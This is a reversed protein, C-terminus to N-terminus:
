SLEKVADDYKGGLLLSLGLEHRLETDGPHDSLFDRYAAIAEDYKGGVDYASALQIFMRRDRSGKKRAAEYSAIAEDLRNQLFRAHGLLVLPEAADPKMATARAAADAAQDPQQREIYSTAARVLTAYDAPAAERRPPEGAPASTACATLLVIVTSRM